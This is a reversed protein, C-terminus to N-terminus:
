LKLFSWNTSKSSLFAKSEDDDDGDDDDDDDDEADPADPSSAEEIDSKEPKPKVPIVDTDSTAQCILIITNLFCCSAFIISLITQTENYTHRGHCISDCGWYWCDHYLYFDDETKIDRSNLTEAKYAEYTKRRNLVDYNSRNSWDVLYKSSSTHDLWADSSVAYNNFKCDEVNNIERGSNRWVTTPCSNSSCFGEEGWFENIRYSMAVIQAITIIGLFIAAMTTANKHVKSTLYPAANTTVLLFVGAALGTEIMSLVGSWNYQLQADSFINLPYESLMAFQYVMLGISSVGGILCVILSLPNLM